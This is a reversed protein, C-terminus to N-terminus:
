EVVEVHAAATAQQPRRMAPLLLIAPLTTCILLVYNSAAFSGQIYPLAVNAITQDLSQLLTAGIAAVTIMARHPVPDALRAADAAM